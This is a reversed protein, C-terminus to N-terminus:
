KGAGEAPKPVLTMGCISCKGPGAQVIEHHHKCWFSGPSAASAPGAPATTSSGDAPVASTTAPPAPAGDPTAGAPDHHQHVTHGDPDGPTQGPLPRPPFLVGTGPPDARVALTTSPEPLPASAADANAPHSTPVQVDVARDSCAAILLVACAAVALRVHAMSLIRRPLVDSSCSSILRWAPGPWRGATWVRHTTRAPATPQCPFSRSM